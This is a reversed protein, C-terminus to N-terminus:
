ANGTGVVQVIGKSSELVTDFTVREPSPDLRLLGDIVFRLEGLRRREDPVLSVKVQTLRPEFAAITEEVLRALRTHVEPSDSSMSTIDPMGYHYLSACVGPLTAPATDAVRRTNLLWELDRRLADKMDRLSEARTTAREVQTGPDLDLLRDLVSLELTREPESRAM